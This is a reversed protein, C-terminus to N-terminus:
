AIRVNRHVLYTEFEFVGSLIHLILYLFQNVLQRGRIERGSDRLLSRSTDSTVTLAIDNDAHCM